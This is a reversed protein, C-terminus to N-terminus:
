ATTLPGSLAWGSVPEGAPGSVAYPPTSFNSSLPLVTLSLTLSLLGPYSNLDLAPITGLSPNTLLLSGPVPPTTSERLSSPCLGSCFSRPKNLM